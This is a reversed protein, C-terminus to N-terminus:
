HFRRHAYTAERTPRETLDIKCEKLLEVLRKRSTQEAAQTEPAPVRGQALAALYKQLLASVSSSRRAAEAQATEYVADEVSLTIEKM